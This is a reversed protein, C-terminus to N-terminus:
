YGLSNKRKKTSYHFEATNALKTGVLVFHHNLAEFMDSDKKLIKRDKNINSLTTLKTDKNLVKNIANRMQKPDGKRNEVIGIYHDRISNIILQNERNRQKSYTSWMEPIRTAIKQVKKTVGNVERLKKFTTHDVFSTQLRYWCVFRLSKANRPKDRLFSSKDLVNKNQKFPMLPIESTYQWEMEMFMVITEFYKTAM